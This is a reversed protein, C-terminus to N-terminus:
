LAKLQDGADLVFGVAKGDFVVSAEVAFALYLAAKVVDGADSWGASFCEHSVEVGDCVDFFGGDFFEGLYGFDRLVDGFPDIFKKVFLSRRDKALRPSPSTSSLVAAHTVLPLTGILPYILEHCYKQIPFM